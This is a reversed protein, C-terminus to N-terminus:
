IDITRDIRYNRMGEPEDVHGLAEVEAWLAPHTTKAWEEAQAKLLPVPLSNYLTAI